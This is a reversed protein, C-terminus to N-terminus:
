GARYSERLPLAMFRMVITEMRAAIELAMGTGAAAYVLTWMVRSVKFSMQPAVLLGPSLIVQGLLHPAV